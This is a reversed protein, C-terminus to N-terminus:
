PSASRLDARSMAATPLCRATLDADLRPGASRSSRAREIKLSLRDLQHHQYTRKGSDRRADIEAAGALACDPVGVIM